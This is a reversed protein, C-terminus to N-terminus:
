QKTFTWELIKIPAQKLATTLADNSDYKLESLHSSEVNVTFEDNEFPWPEVTLNGNELRRLDYRQQDIGHTIELARGDDPIQQQALILSLRDCWQMFQYSRDADEKAIGLEKAWQEQNHVQTELFSRWDESIERKDQNLFCVHMSTLLTVWRGRYLSDELHKKFTELSAEPSAEGLTFDLPAGSSTLHNGKWERELDDHHSIAAITEYLRVPSNNRQWQGGLQAALLAHARHYIVDWGDKALNVIM